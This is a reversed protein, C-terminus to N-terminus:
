QALPPGSAARRLEYLLIGAAVALNLSSAAGHMPIAVALDAREQTAADLGMRESGLLLLAPFRYAASWHSVEAKASTAVTAVGHEAAWAFLEDRTAVQAVPVTFLAGMSAKVATPHFPDTSRGVLIVGSAGASDVTRLITGVNGPDSPELLAAFFARPTVPLQALPTWAARVIAGLGVPHDRDSFLDFLGAALPTVRGGRAAFAELAARAAASTLLDPSFVVEEVEAGQELASLVPRLGDVYFAGERLRYKRLQLRKLRKVLPNQASTIM